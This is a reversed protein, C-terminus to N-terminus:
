TAYETLFSEVHHAQQRPQMTHYHEYADAPSCNAAAALTEYFIPTPTRHADTM